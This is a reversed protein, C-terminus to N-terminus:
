LNKPEKKKVQKLLNLRLKLGNTDKKGNKKIDLIKSEYEKIKEQLGNDLKIILSKTGEKLNKRYILVLNMDDTIHHQLLENEPKWITKIIEATKIKETKLTFDSENILETVNKKLEKIKRESMNEVERILVLETALIKKAESQSNTSYLTGFDVLLNYPMEKARNGKSADIISM